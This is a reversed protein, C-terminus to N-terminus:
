WALTLLRSYPSSPQTYPEHPKNPPRMVLSAPLGATARPVAIEADLGILPDDFRGAAARLLSPHAVVPPVPEAAVVAVEAPMVRQGLVIEAAIRMEGGCHNRDVNGVAGIRV